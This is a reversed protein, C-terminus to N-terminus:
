FKVNLQDKDNRNEVRINPIVAPDDKDSVGYNM